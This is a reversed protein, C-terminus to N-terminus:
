PRYRHAGLRSSMESSLMRGAGRRHRPVARGTTMIWTRSRRGPWRGSRVIKTVAYAAVAATVFVGAVAAVRPGTLGANRAKSAAQSAQQQTRRAYQQAVQKSRDAVNTRQVLERLIQNVDERVLEREAQLGTETSNTRRTGAHENTSSM